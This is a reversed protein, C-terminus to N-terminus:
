CPTQRGRPRWSHAPNLHYGGEKRDLLLTMGPRVDNARRQEWSQAEGNWESAKAKHNNLFDTLDKLPVPCIEAPDPAAEDKGPQKRWFVYVSTDREADRVYASIDTFGGALYGQLFLSSMKAPLIYSVTM